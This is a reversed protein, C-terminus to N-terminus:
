VSIGLSMFVFNEKLNQLFYDGKPIKLLIIVIHIHIRVAYLQIDGQFFYILCYLKDTMSCVAM